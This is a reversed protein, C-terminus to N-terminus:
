KSKTTSRRRLEDDLNLLVHLIPESKADEFDLLALLRKGDPAVDFAPFIGTDGLRKPCWDRAKEALFSKGKVRYAAVEVHRDLSQFFLERGNRSWQPSVGGRNSIPWKDGASPTAPSFSRVYIEFRGSEDSTYAVWRGDPSLAPAGKSGAGQVIPQPRGLVLSEATRTVAVTWLDSDPQLPWFALLKGDASFSWPGVNAGVGELHQIGGSGDSRAWALTTGSRFSIFQGDPTWTPLLAPAADSTLRTATDRTLDYVWINQRGEEILATALRGGDPSLRPTLFKGPELLLRDTRGSPYLWSLAFKGSSRSGRYVLTGSNSLDFEARGFGGPNAVGSVLQQPMGTVELRSLDMSVAYLTSRQRYVLYGSPLYRGDSANEIITNTKGNKLTLV